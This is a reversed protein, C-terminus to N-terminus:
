GSTFRLMTLYHIYLCHLKKAHRRVINLICLWIECIMKFYTIIALLYTPTQFPKSDMVLKDFSLWHNDPKKTKGSLHKEM